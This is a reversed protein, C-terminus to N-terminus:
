DLLEAIRQGLAPGRLNKDVIIGNEDILFTAPISRVNYNRAIPDDWFKLNSVHHWNMNDDEIAQVWREKQGPRDLSVSIINLGKDHYQNYVNVVNPNERRCPKCWSAWFDIITYKGMADELSMTTGNPTAASFSPAKGGVDSAGLSELAKEIKDVAPSAKLKPSLGDISKKAETPTIEQRSLMESILMVSFLMDPHEAIFKQKYIKEQIGIDANEQRIQNMMVNDQQQSAAQFRSSLAKRQESYTRMGSTFERYEDNQMSGTVYSADISDKYVTVRLDENEPFYAINGLQNFSLYNITSRDDRPYSASFTGGNVVLTDITAPQNSVPDIQYVLIEYGDEFGPATGTLTYTDSDSACGFLLTTCFFFFLARM